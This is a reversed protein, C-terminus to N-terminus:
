SGFISHSLPTQQHEEMKGSLHRSIRNKPLGMDKGKKEKM